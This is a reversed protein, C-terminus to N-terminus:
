PLDTAPWRVTIEAGDLAYTIERQGFLNVCDHAPTAQHIGCTIDVANALAVGTAATTRETM